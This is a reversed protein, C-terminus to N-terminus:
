QRTLLWLPPDASLGPSQPAASTDTLTGSAGAGCEGRRLAPSQATLRFGCRPRAYRRPDIFGVVGFSPRHSSDGGLGLGPSLLTEAAFSPTLAQGNALRADLRWM